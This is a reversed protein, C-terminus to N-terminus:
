FVHYLKGAYVFFGSFFNVIRYMVAYLRKIKM